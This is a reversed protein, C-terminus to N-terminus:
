LQPGVKDIPITWDLATWATNWYKDDFEYFNDVNWKSATM